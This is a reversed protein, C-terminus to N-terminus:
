LSDTQTLYICFIDPTPAYGKRKFFFANKQRVKEENLNRRQRFSKVSKRKRHNHGAHEDEAYVEKGLKLKKVLHEFNESTMHSKNGYHSFLQEIFFSKKVTIATDHEHTDNEHKDHDHKDHDHKDHDHEKEHDSSDFGDLDFEFEDHDHGDHDHGDHENYKHLDQEM